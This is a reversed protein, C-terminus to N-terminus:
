TPAKGPSAAGFVRYEYALAFLWLALRPLRRVSNQAVIAPTPSNVRAYTLSSSITFRFSADHWSVVETKGFHRSSTRTASRAPECFVFPCVPFGAARLLM